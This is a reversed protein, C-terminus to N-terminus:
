SLGVMIFKAFALVIEISGRTKAFGTQFDISQFMKKMIQSKWSLSFNFLNLKERIKQNILLSKSTPIVDTCLM